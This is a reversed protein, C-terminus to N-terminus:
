KLKYSKLIQKEKDNFFSFLIIIQLFFLFCIFQVIHAQRIRSDCDYVSVIRGDIWFPISETKKENNISIQLKSVIERWCTKRRFLGFFTKFWKKNQKM